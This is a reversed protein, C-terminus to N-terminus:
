EAHTREKQIIERLMVGELELRYERFNLVLLRSFLEASLTSIRCAQAGPKLGWTGVVDVPMASQRREGGDREGELM